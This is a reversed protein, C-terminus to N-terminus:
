GRVRVGVRVRVRVSVSVRARVRVRAMARVRVRVRVGVRVPPLLVVPRVVLRHGDDLPELARGVVPYVAHVELARHRCATVTPLLELRPNPARAVARLPALLVACRVSRLGPLLASPHPSLASREEARIVVKNAWHRTDTDWASPCM